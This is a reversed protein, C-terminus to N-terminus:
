RGKTVEPFTSSRIPYEEDGSYVTVRSESDGSTIEASKAVLRGPQGSVLATM